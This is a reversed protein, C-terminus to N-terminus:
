AYGGSRQPACHVCSSAVLAISPFNHEKAKSFAGVRLDFITPQRTSNRAADNYGNACGKNCGPDKIDVGVRITQDPHLNPRGNAHKCNGGDSKSCHNPSSKDGRPLSIRAKLLQLPKPFLDLQTLLAIQSVQHQLSGLEYRFLRIRFLCGADSCQFDDSRGRARLKGVWRPPEKGINKLFCGSRIVPAFNGLLYNSCEIIRKLFIFENRAINQAKSGVILIWFICCVPTNNLSNSMGKIFVSSDLIRLYFRSKAVLIKKLIYLKIITRKIVCANRNESITMKLITSKAFDFCAEYCVVIEAVAIKRACFDKYIPLDYSIRDFCLKVAVKIDSVRRLNNAQRGLVLQIPKLCHSFIRFISTSGIRLHDRFEDANWSALIEVTCIQNAETCFGMM